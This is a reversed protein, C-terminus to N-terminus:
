SALKFCETFGEDPFIHSLYPTYTFKQRPHGDVYLYGGAIKIKSKYYEMLQKLHFTDSEFKRFAEKLARDESSFRFYFSGTAQSRLSIAYKSHPHLTQQTIFVALRLHHVSKTLLEVM